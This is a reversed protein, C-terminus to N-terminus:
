ALINKFDGELLYRPRGSMDTKQIKTDIEFHDFVTAAVDMPGFPDSKPEEANATSEGIVRGQDYNGGAMMLSTLNSWHDRGASQNTRYTRGFEGAVVVLVNKSIGIDKIDDLLAGIARDVPPVRSIMANKIDSHMDWGGYNVSVFKTGHDVLRKSLLLQDGITTKGYRLRSEESELSIDFAESAKGLVIGYTQGRLDGWLDSELKMRDLGDVLGRRGTFRGIETRAKLNQVGEGNADYPNTQGGLWAGEEFEIGNAKVYTPMGSNSNAGFTSSVISGYSPNLQPAEPANNPNNFGTMMWHTATRHSSNKHAFSRVINIQQSRKAVESWLGSIEFGSNTQIYGNVSRVSDTANPKPDWLEIHSPGGSLWIWIVSKENDQEAAICPLGAAVVGAVGVKMFDRRNFNIKM